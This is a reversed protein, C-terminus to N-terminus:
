RPATGQGGAFRERLAVVEGIVIIAPAEFGAADAKEAINSLTGILTEQRETTGWRILAVPQDAPRGGTLVGSVIRELNKVGMYVCLTDAGSSLAAWSVDSREKTPDEHGTVFAVSSAVGRHTVPIGAAAPVAGGASVGPVVEFSIGADALALAEEGGRGFIFPDGGKLRVILRCENATAAEVLLANIQEQTRHHHGGRKGVYVLQADPRAEAILREDVLYDYVVMDAARLRELGRATILGPDGPGAGVLSVLTAIDIDAASEVPAAASATLAGAAITAEATAFLQEATLNEAFFRTEIEASGLTELLTHRRAPDDTSARALARADAVVDLYRQWRPDFEAAIRDRIRRSVSPSAGSTSVTIRLRGQRLEAPVIVDGDDPETADNLLCGSAKAADRMAANVHPDDTAAVLLFAGDTDTPEFDRLSLEIRGAEALDTLGSCAKTTVVHVTAGGGLATRARREAVPGGGAIVVLRGTLDVLLPALPRRDGNASNTDSAPEM